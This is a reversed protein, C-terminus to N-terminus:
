GLFDVKELKKEKEPDALLRQYIELASTVDQIALGTSDFVTIEGPSQRGPKQGTLIEGITGYIDEPRIIGQSLPVNIEGSKSAQEWNDIVVRARQLIKPDLEQKGHADAGVANIHVGERIDASFLVPGRSPTTTVIIDAGKVAASVNEARIAEIKFKQNAWAAYDGAKKGDRDFVAIRSLRPRVVLIAALQSRAQNGAGIFAATRADERALHKVAVGGAAGTRMNTIYTGDMIALPYGTEPDFLSITGMVAPLDQNGPHVNVNKMGAINLSPIYAPMCRLDGRPFSLYMKPPMEVGGRGTLRFAEEIIGVYDPMSLVGELDSRKIIYTFKKM